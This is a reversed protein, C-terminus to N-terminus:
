KMGYTYTKSKFLDVCVLCYKPAVVSKSFFNLDAVDSKQFKKITKNDLTEKQM